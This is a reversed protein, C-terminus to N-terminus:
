KGLSDFEAWGQDLLDQCQQTADKIAEEVPVRDESMRRFGEFYPDTVTWLDPSMPRPRAHTVLEAATAVFPEDKMMTVFKEEKMLPQYCPLGMLGGKGGLVADAGIPIYKPGETSLWKLFQWAEEPHKTASMIGYSTTWGGANNVWGKTVMPQGM